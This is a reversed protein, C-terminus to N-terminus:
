IMSMILTIKDAFSSLSMFQRIQIGAGLWGKGNGRAAASHNNCSKNIFCILGGKMEGTRERVPSKKKLSFPATKDFPAWHCFGTVVASNLCRWIFTRGLSPGYFRWQTCNSQYLIDVCAPWILLLPMCRYGSLLPLVKINHNMLGNILYKIAPWCSRCLRPRSGSEQFCNKRSGTVFHKIKPPVNPTKIIEYRIILFLLARELSLHLTDHSLKQQLSASWFYFKVRSIILSEWRDFVM